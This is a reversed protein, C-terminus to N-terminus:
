VTTIAEEEEPQPNRESLFIPESLNLNKLEENTAQVIVTDPTPYLETIMSDASLKREQASGNSADALAAGIGYVVRLRNM